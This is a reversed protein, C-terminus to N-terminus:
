DGSINKIEKNLKFRLPYSEALIFNFKRLLSLEFYVNSKKLAKAIEKQTSLPRKKLYNLIKKFDNPIKKEDGKCLFLIHNRKKKNKLYPFIKKFFDEKNYTILCNGDYRDYLDMKKLFSSYIGRLKENKCAFRLSKNYLSVNGEADFLGAFFANKNLHKDLLYDLNDLLYLFFSSLIGNTSFVSVAWGNGKGKILVKKDFNINPNKVKKGLYLIREINQYNKKLFKESFDLIEKDQNIIGFRKGGSKDGCWLGFFYSFEEDISYQKPLKKTFKKFEKKNFNSYEVIILNKKESIILKKFGFGFLNKYELFWKMFDIKGSRVIENISPIKERKNKIIERIAIIGKDLSDRIIESKEKKSIINKDVERENLIKIEILRKIVKKSITKFYLNKYARISSAPIKLCDEAKKSSGFKSIVRKFVEKQFAPKLEFMTTSEM